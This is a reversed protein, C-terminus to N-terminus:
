SGIGSSDFRTINIRSHSFSISRVTETDGSRYVGTYRSVDSVIPQSFSIQAKEDYVTQSPNTFRQLTIHPMTHTIVMPEDDIVHLSPLNFGTGDTVCSIGKTTNNATNIVYTTEIYYRKRENEGNPLSHIVVTGPPYDVNLYISNAVPVGTDAYFVESQTFFPILETKATPVTWTVDLNFNIGATPPDGNPQCPSRDQQDIVTIPITANLASSLTGCIVVDADPLGVKANVYSHTISYQSLPTHFVSVEKFQQEPLGKDIWLRFVKDSREVFPYSTALTDTSSLVVPTGALQEWVIAHGPLNAPIDVVGQLNVVSGCAVFTDEGASLLVVQPIGLQTTNFVVQFGM